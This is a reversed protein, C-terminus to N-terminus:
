FPGGDRRVDRWRVVGGGGGEVEREGERRFRVESGAPPPAGGGVGPLGDGGGSRGVPVTRPV